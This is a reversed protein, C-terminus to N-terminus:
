FRRKTQMIKTPVSCNTTINLKKPPSSLQRSVIILIIISLSGHFHSYYSTSISVYLLSFNPNSIFIDSVSVLSHYRFSLLQSHSGFDPISYRNKETLDPNFQISIESRLNLNHHYFQSESISTSILIKLNLGSIFMQTESDLKIDLISIQFQSRHTGSNQDSICNKEQLDRTLVFTFSSVLFSIFNFWFTFSFSQIQLGCVYLTTM